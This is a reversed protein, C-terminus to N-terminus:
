MKEKLGNVLKVHESILNRMKLVDQEMTARKQRVKELKEYFKDPENKCDIAILEELHKQYSIFDNAFITKTDAVKNQNEVLGTASMSNEVLKINLPTIYKSLITEYHAGLFVRARSDNKQVTKLSERITECHDKIGAKQEESIAKVPLTMGVLCFVLFITYYLYLRNKKM